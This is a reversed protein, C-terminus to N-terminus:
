PRDEERIVGPSRGRGWGLGHLAGYAAFHLSRVMSGVDRLPSRKIRRESISRRAEGELDIVVLDNGTDLLQALHYNGHCRIRAGTLSRDLVARVRRLLAERGEAVRRAPPRAAEPLTDYQRALQFCVQGTLNRMSQYLSRQYLRSFPDPAFAPDATDAALARHLEATRRGLLQATGLYPAMLEDLDSGTGAPEGETPPVSVPTPGAPPQLLRERPMALVREFYSSLRNLTLQWADG